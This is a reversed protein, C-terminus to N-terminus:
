SKACDKMHNRSDPLHRGWSRGEGRANSKTEDKGWSWCPARGKVYFLRGFWGPRIETGTANKQSAAPMRWDKKLGTCVSPEDSESAGRM